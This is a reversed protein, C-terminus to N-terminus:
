LIQSDVYLQCMQPKTYRKVINMFGVMSKYYKRTFKSSFPGDDFM